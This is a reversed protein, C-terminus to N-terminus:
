QMARIYLTILECFLLFSKVDIWEDNTHILGGEPRSLLVPIGHKSFYHHDASGHNRVFIEDLDPASPVHQQVLNIWLQIAPLSTDVVFPEKEVLIKTVIDPFRSAIDKSIEQLSEGAALRIDLVSTATAPIQNAQSGANLTGINITTEHTESQAPPFKSSIYHLAEVLKVTASDGEWPRSAHASKGQATLELWAAGKAAEAVHWNEGADPIVVLKPRYAIEDVMYKAGNFGGQEEDATLLIGLSLESLENSKSLQDIAYIFSAVAFKMDSTGRGIFKGDEERMSFMESPGPVVDIHACLLVDPQKTDKTLWVTSVMGSSPETFERTILDYPALQERIYQYCAQIEAPNSATTEFSVLESLIQDPRINKYPM